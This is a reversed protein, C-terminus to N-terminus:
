PAEQYYQTVARAECLDAVAQTNHISTDTIAVVGFFGEGPWPMAVLQLEMVAALAADATLVGAGVAILQSAAGLSAELGISGDADVYTGTPSWIRRGGMFPFALFGHGTGIGRPLVPPVDAADFFEATLLEGAPGDDWLDAGGSLWTPTDLQPWAQSM